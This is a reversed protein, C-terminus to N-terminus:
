AKKKNKIVIVAIFLAIVGAWVFATWWWTGITYVAAASLYSAVVWFLLTWRFTGKKLEGKASAVAAFCPITTMNFVIFSILAPVTAKTVEIMKIVEAVGDETGEFGAVICAALSAFTAIVNEKAILGTVAAVVFTWGWTGLQLGFGLPTFLPQFFKGLSALISKDIEGVMKWDWGFNSLFWIVICSVLIITFAKEVYHKLKDWLLLMLNKFRPMHYAPLEMIFPTVDGRMTTNRMVILAIM